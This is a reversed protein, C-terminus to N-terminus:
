ASIGYPSQVASGRCRRGTLFVNGIGKLTLNGLDEAEALGQLDLRDGEDRSFDTVKDREPELNANGEPNSVIGEEGFVFTDARPM